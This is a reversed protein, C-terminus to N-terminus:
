WSGADPYTLPAPGRRADMDPTFALDFLLALKQRMMPDESVETPPNWFIDVVRTGEFNVRVIFQGPMDARSSRLYHDTMSGPAIGMKADHQIWSTISLYERMGFDGWVTRSNERTLRACLEKIVDM